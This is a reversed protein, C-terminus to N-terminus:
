QPSFNPTSFVTEENCTKSGQFSKMIYSMTSKCDRCKSRMESNTSPSLLPFCVCHNCPINHCSAWYGISCPICAQYVVQCQLM